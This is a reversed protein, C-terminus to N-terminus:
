PRLWDGSTGGFGGGLTADSTGPVGHRCLHQMHRQHVLRTETGLRGRRRSRCSAVWGRRVARALARPMRWWADPDRSLVRIQFAPPSHDIHPIRVSSSTSM